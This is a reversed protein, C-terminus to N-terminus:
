RISEADSADVPFGAWRALTILRVKEADTWPRSDDVPLGERMAQRRVREMRHEVHEQDSVRLISCHPYKSARAAQRADRKRQRGEAVERMLDRDAAEWRERREQELQEVTRRAALQRARKRQRRARTTARKEAKTSMM